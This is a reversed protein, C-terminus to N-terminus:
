SVNTQGTLDHEYMFTLGGKEPRTIHIILRNKKYFGVSEKQCGILVIHDM